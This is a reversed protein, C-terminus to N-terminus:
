SQQTKFLFQVVGMGSGTTVWATHTLMCVTSSIWQLLPLLCNTQQQHPPRQERRVVGHGGVVVTPASVPRCSLSLLKPSCPPDVSFLEVKEFTGHTLVICSQARLISFYIPTSGRTKSFHICTILLATRSNRYCRWTITFTSFYTYRQLLLNLPPLVVM